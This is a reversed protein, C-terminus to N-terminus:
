DDLELWVDWVSQDIQRAGDIVTELRLVNTPLLLGRLDFTRPDSAAAQPSCALRQANLFVVTAADLRLRLDVRAGPGLGTPCHFIRELVLPPADAASASPSSAATVLRPWDDPLRVRASEGGASVLQWPGRLRIAHPM